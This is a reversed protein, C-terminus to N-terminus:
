ERPDSSKGKQGWKSGCCNTFQQQTTISDVVQKQWGGELAFSCNCCGGRMSFSATGDRDISQYLFHCRRWCQEVVLGLNSAITRRHLDTCPLILSPARVISSATADKPEGVKLLTNRLKKGELALQELRERRSSTATKAVKHVTTEILDV